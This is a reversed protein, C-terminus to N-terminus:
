HTFAILSLPAPIAASRDSFGRNKREVVPRKARKTVSPFLTEGLVPM